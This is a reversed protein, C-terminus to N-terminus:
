SRTAGAEIKELASEILKIICYAVESERALHGENFLNESLMEAIAKALILDTEAESWASLKLKMM